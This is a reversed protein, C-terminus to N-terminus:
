DRGTTELIDSASSAFAEFVSSAAASAAAIDNPSSLRQDLYTVFARWLKPNGASLFATPSSASTRRLLMAGGLRSGELVYAAGLIAAEGLIPPIHVPAPAVLELATLDAVLAGARRRESWDVMVRAAGAADLAAETPLFAGAQALLFARYDSPKALDFRSFQADLREHADSTAAKLAFRASM